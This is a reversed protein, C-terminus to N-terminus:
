SKSGRVLRKWWDDPSTQQIADFLRGGERTLLGQRLYELWEERLEHDISISERVHLVAELIDADKAILASDSERQKWETAASLILEIAAPPLGRCQETIISVDSSTQSLYKAALHDVDGTRAEAMDHVLALLAARAPDTGRMGALVVALLAARFSHAAVTDNIAMRALRWGSRQLRKLHGLEFLFDASSSLPGSDNPRGTRPAALARALLFLQKEAPGEDPSHTAAVSAEVCFGAAGLTQELEKQPIGSAPFTVGLFDVPVGDGEFDVMAVSLWGDPKLWGHARKLMTTIELRPLMSLAFHAVIADFKGFSDPLDTFSVAHFFSGPYQKRRAIALMGESVDIGLVQHGAGTLIDVVPKGTGCGLDLISSHPSLHAVLDVVSQVQHPNEGHLREYQEAISDFVPM